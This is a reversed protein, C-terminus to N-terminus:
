GTIDGATQGVQVRFAYEVPVEGGLNALHTITDNLPSVPALFPRSIDGWFSCKSLKLNSGKHHIEQLHKQTSFLIFHKVKAEKHTEQPTTYLSISATSFLYNNKWKRM